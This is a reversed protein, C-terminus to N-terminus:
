KKKIKRKPASEVLAKLKAREKASIEQQKGQPSILDTLKPFRKPQHYGVATLHATWWSESLGQDLRSKYGELALCFEAYTMNWFVDPSM